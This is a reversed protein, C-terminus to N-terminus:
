ADARERDRKLLAFVQQESVDMAEAMRRVPVGQERLEKIVRLRKQGLSAIHEQHSRMMKTMSTLETLEDTIDTAM